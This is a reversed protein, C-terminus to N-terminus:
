NVKPWKGLAFELYKPATDVKFPGKAPPPADVERVSRRKYWGPQIADERQNEGFTVDKLLPCTLGIARLMKAIEKDQINVYELKTLM